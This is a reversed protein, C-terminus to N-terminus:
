PKIDATSWFRVCIEAKPAQSSTEASPKHGQQEAGQAKLLSRCVRHGHKGGTGVKAEPCVM